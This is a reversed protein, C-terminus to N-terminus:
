FGGFDNFTLTCERLRTIDVKIYSNLSEINSHGSIESLTTLSTEKDNFLNNLTTHRFSHFGKKRNKLDIGTKYLYRNLIEYTSTSNLKKNNTSLFLYENNNLHRSNKLYDILCEILSDCLPIIVEKHNKQQIISLTKNKFNLNKLKLNVIDSSRLCTLIALYIMAYDRKGIITDRNIQNLINIIEDDKWISPIISNKGVRYTQLRFSYNNNILKNEYMYNLFLKIRSIYVNYTLKNNHNLTDLFDLLKEYSYNLYNNVANFTLFRTIIGKQNNITAESFNMLKCYDMYEKLIKANYENLTEKRRKKSKKEQKM